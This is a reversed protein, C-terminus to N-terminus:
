DQNNLNGYMSELELYVLEAQPILERVRDADNRWPAFRGDPSLGNDTNPGNISELYLTFSNDANTQPDFNDRWDRFGDCGISGNPQCYIQSTGVSRDESFNHDVDGVAGPVYGSEKGDIATKIILDRGRFGAIYNYRMADNVSIQDGLYVSGGKEKAKSWAWDPDVKEYPSLDAQMRRGVENIPQKEPMSAGAFGVGNFGGVLANGAQGFQEVVPIRTNELTKFDTGTLNGLTFTGIGIWIARPLRMGRKSEYTFVVRGFSRTAENIFNGGSSSRESM